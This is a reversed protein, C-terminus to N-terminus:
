NDRSRDSLKIKCNMIYFSINGPLLIASDILWYERHSEADPKRKFLRVIGNTKCADRVAANIKEIDSGQYNNPDTYDM